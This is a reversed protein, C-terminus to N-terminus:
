DPRSLLPIKNNKKERELRRRAPSPLAASPPPSAAGCRLRPPRPPPSPRRPSQRSPGPGASGATDCDGDASRRADNLHPRQVARGRAAASGGRGFTGKLGALAPSVGRDVLDDGEETKGEFFTGAARRASLCVTLALCEPRACGASRWRSLAPVPHARRAPATREGEWNGLGRASGPGPLGYFYIFGRAASRNVGPQRAPWRPFLLLPLSLAPRPPRPGARPPEAPQARSPGAASGGRRAPTLHEADPVQAARRDGRM